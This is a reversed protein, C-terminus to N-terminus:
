APPPDVQSQKLDKLSQELELQARHQQMALLHKEWAREVLRILESPDVPKILYECVGHRVADQASQMDPYGTIIFIITDQDVLRLSSALEMGGISDMRLDTIVIHYYKQHLMELAESVNSAADVELGDIEFIDVLVERVTEEDDVVLIRPRTAERKERLDSRRKEIAKDVARLVDIGDLPKSLQEAAGLLKAQDYERPSAGSMVMVFGIEPLRERLYILLDRSKDALGLDVVLADFAEKRALSSSVLDMASSADAATQIVHGTLAGAEELMERITLEEDLILVRNAMM